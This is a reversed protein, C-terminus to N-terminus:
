DRENIVADIMAQYALTIDDNYDDDDQTGAKLMKETPERMAKIVAIVKDRYEQAIEPIVHVSNIHNWSIPGKMGFLISNSFDFKTRMIQDEDWLAKACREIMEKDSM